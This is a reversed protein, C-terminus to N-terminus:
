EVLRPWQARGDRPLDFGSGWGIALKNCTTRVLKGAIWHVQAENNKGEANCDPDARPRHKPRRHGQESSGIPDVDGKFFCFHAALEPRYIVVVDRPHPAPYPYLTLQQM